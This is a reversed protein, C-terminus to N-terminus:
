PERLEWCYVFVGRLAPDYAALRRIQFHPSDPEVPAYTIGLPGAAEFGFRGYFRDSGLLLLAPYGQREARTVVETMLASGIGRGQHAPAVALPAVAPLSASGLEGLAILVHGVVAGAEDAVLELGPLHRDSAWTDRVIQVEEAGDHGSTSFAALVLAVIADRDENRAPRIAVGGNM